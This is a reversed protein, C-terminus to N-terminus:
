HEESREYRPQRIGLLRPRAFFREAQEVVFDHHSQPIENSAILRLSHLRWQDSRVFEARLLPAPFHAFLAQCLKDYRRAMNRGFYVSLKRRGGKLPALTAQLRPGLEESAVRIIAAHKLDQVTTVSPMPRHGRAQALLSV